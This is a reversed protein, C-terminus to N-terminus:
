IQPFVKRRPFTVFYQNPSLFKGWPFSKGSSIKGSLTYRVKVFTKFSNAGGVEGGGMWGAFFGRVLKEATGGVSM